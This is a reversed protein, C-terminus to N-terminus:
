LVHYRFLVKETVNMAETIIRLICEFHGQFHKNAYIYVLSSNIRNKLPEACSSSKCPLPLKVKQISYSDGVSLM